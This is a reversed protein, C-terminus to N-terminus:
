RYFEDESFTGEIPLWRFRCFYLGKRYFECITKMVRSNTISKKSSHVFFDEGLLLRRFLSFLAVMKLSRAMKARLGELQYDVFCM